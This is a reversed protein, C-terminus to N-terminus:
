KISYFLSFSASIIGGKATIDPNMKCAKAVHLRMSQQGSFKKGCGLSCFHPKKAVKLKRESTAMYNKSIKKLNFNESVGESEEMVIDSDEFKLGSEFDEEESKIGLPHTGVNAVPSIYWILYLEFVIYTILSDKPWFSGGM